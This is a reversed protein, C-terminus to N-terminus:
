CALCPWINTNLLLSAVALHQWVLRCCININRWFTHQYQANVLLRVFNNNQTAADYTPTGDSPSMMRQQRKKWFHCWINTYRGFTVDHTPMGDYLSIMHQYGILVQCWINNLLLLAFIFIAHSAVDYKYTGDWPSMMHQYQATVFHSFFYKPMRPSIMQRWETRPHCM